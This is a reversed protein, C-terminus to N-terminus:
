FLQMLYEGNQVDNYHQQIVGTKDKLPLRVLGDSKWDDGALRPRKEYAKEENEMLKRKKRSSKSDKRFNCHLSYLCTSTIIIILNM